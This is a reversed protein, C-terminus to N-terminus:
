SILKLLKKGIWRTYAPPIAQSLEDRSMWLIGMARSAEHRYLMKHKGTHGGHGYVGVAEGKHLCIPQPLPFSTEFIRHRRLYGQAVGLKFMSGCLLVGHNGKNDTRRYLPATEVNEIIYPKGTQKLLHRVLPILKKYQRSPHMAALVSYGQCPPSAHIVDYDGGHKELYRIADGWIFNHPNNPQPKIDVGTVEFGALRYGEGAGGAGCFLDLLRLM